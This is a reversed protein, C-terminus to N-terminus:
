ANPEKMPLLITLLFSSDDIARVSHPEGASLYLMQEAALEQQRGMATLAVRGDLCQVIIEGPAKHEAIVKGKDLVLRVVEVHKTKILTVTRTEAGTAGAPRVNFAQGPQAHPIAM